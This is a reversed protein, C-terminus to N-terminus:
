WIGSIRSIDNFLAFVMLSMLVFLGVQQAIEMKRMSVPAGRLAEITYFLLHGGDLVPIPLLNLVFLNVSLAAMMTLFSALGIKFTEHAAQAISIVGGINKPSIKAQVLRVFSVVTMATVEVTRHWGRVVASVPGTAKISVLEPASLQILPMIGVTYRRDESGQTNMQSTIEPALLIEKEEGSRSVKFKMDGEGKYSKVSALIDEWIAPAKGDIELIRDGSQLGAREAPSKPMVKYLYLDSSELGLVAISSFSKFNVNLNLKEVQKGDLGPDREVELTIDSGQHPLLLPDLDRFHKVEVNNVKVIRDWTQLGAKAAPTGARVGIIPAKSLYTLGEIDGVFDDMSLINPNAHNEPIVEIVQPQEFGTRRIQLPIKNTVDATLRDQIDDWTAVPTANVTLVLDGPRLGLDFAKSSPAIDGIIPARVDEGLSAVAAFLAIAFIFNMVPGALVVAIRQWVSKHTFSFAKESEPIAANLEDGFMKVYGGLPILSLAYTTDGKKFTFIKKGFGLSFVEVRVRCLKAVAFHGLEHVFILLGLMLIFAFVANFGTQFFSIVIDM